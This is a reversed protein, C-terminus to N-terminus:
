LEMAEVLARRRQDEAEMRARQRALKARLAIAMGFFATGAGGLFCAAGYGVLEWSM